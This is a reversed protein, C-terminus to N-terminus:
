SDFVLPVLGRAKTRGRLVNTVGGRTAASPWEVRPVCGANWAGGWSRRTSRVGFNTWYPTAPVTEM